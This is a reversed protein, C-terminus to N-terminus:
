PTLHQRSYFDLEAFAALGDSTIVFTNTGTPTIWRPETMPPLLKNGYLKVLAGYREKFLPTVLYCRNSLVQLVGSTPEGGDLSPGGAEVIRPTIACGAIILVALSLVCAAYKM